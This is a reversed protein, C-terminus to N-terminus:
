GPTQSPSDVRADLTKELAELQQTISADVVGAESELLCGGQSIREDGVVELFNVGGNGNLIEGIRDRVQSEVDTSVRLTVRPENRVVHLAARAERIVLDEDPFDGLIKRLCTLVIRAVEAEAGALYDVSRSVVNLIQEAVESQAEALGEERGRVKEEKYTSEADALIAAAQRRADTLATEAEIASLYDGAKLVRLAPDLKIVDPTLQIFAAM